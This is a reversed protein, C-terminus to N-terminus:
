AELFLAKRARLVGPRPYEILGLTRLRGRPNNFAGGGPEYGAARAAEDNAISEPYAALVVRLIKQEPGPLRALVAAQMDGATLPADSVRAKARGTDTLVMRDGPLYDLLGMTRLKGRPNNFAGGGVTYGALFAVAAQEPEALGVSELWALADLIRQEPGTLDGAPEARRAAVPARSVHPAAPVSVPRVPLATAAAQGARELLSRLAGLETVVVQQRQSLSDIAKRIGGQFVSEGAELKDLASELRKLDAPKLVSRERAKPERKAALDAYRQKWSDAANRSENAQKRLQALEARLAKPDEAKAREITAAMRQQISALDPKAGAGKATRAREGPKPTASSDFTKRLHITVVRETKLWGPSVVLCAGRDLERVQESLVKARAKDVHTGLWDLIAELSNPGVTRFAFMADALESVSKNMRASRQTLLTVGLGINRGEEVIQEWAGVCQALQPDGAPIVQPIYRAAEDLIQMLPERRASGKLLEGQRQFLRQAYATVFKTREAKSWMEGNPRRSFDILVNVSEEVVVDAVAVGGEPEIPIDGRPGGLILCEVGPGAGSADHRLGWSVGLPDLWAWRMGAETLEEVLVSGLNTKGMGKGGYIVLTSTVTDRPLMLEPSIRIPTPGTRVM